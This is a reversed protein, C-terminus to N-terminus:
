ARPVEIPTLLAPKKGQGYIVVDRANANNYPSQYEDLTDIINYGMDTFYKCFYIQNTYASWYDTNYNINFVSGYKEYVKKCAKGLILGNSISPFPFTDENPPVHGPFREPSAQEVLGCVFAVKDKCRDLFPTIFDGRTPIYDDEILFFYDYDNLNRIITDNWIGYSFGSNKRYLIEFKYPYYDDLQRKIVPDIDDNFVFTTSIQDPNHVTQLFDLHKRFFCLPDKNFLDQYHAYTRLPGIYNAVIYNVRTNM